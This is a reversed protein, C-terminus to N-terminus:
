LLDLQGRTNTWQSAIGASSANLTDAVTTAAGLLASRAAPEGPNNAVDQWASWMSSLQSQLGTTGPAGTLQELNAYTRQAEALFANQGHALRDQAELFTDRVRSVGAVSVGGGATADSVAFVSRSVSGASQLNVQQRAYGDTNANAVNQGVIDLALKQATLASLATNLASFTSSM